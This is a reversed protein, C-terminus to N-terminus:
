IPNKEKENNGMLSNKNRLYCTLDGVSFGNCLYKILHHCINESDKITIPTLVTLFHEIIKLQYNKKM